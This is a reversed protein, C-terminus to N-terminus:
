LKRNALAAERAAQLDVLDIPGLGIWHSKHHRRYRFVWSRGRQLYLGNGDNVTLRKRAAKAVQLATLRHIGRAMGCELGCKLASRRRARQHGVALHFALCVM